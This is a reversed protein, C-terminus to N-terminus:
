RATSKSPGEFKGAGMAGREEEKGIRKLLAVHWVANVDLGISGRMRSLNAM